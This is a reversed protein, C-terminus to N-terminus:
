RITATQIEIAEILYRILSLMLLFIVTSVQWRKDDASLKSGRSARTTFHCVRVNSPRIGFPM